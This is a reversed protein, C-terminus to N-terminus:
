QVPPFSNGARKTAADEIAIATIIIVFLPQYIAIIKVIFDEQAQFYTGVVLIITSIVVDLVALWFKRSRFLLQWPNM